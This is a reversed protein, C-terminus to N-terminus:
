LVHHTSIGTGDYTDAGQKEQHAGMLPLTLIMVHLAPVFSRRDQEEQWTPSSCRM